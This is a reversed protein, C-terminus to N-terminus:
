AVASTDAFFHTWIADISKFAGPKLGKIDFRSGKLKEILLILEMVQPSRLIRSELLPTADKLEEPALKANVSLIWERLARKIDAESSM